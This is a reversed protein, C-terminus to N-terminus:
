TVIIFSEARTIKNLSVVSPYLADRRREAVASNSKSTHLVQDSLYPSLKSSIAINVLKVMFGSM